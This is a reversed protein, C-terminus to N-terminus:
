YFFLNRGRGGDLFYVASASVCSGNLSLENFYFNIKLNFFGGGWKKCLSCLLFFFVIGFCLSFLLTCSLCLYFLSALWVPWQRLGLVSGCASWRAVCIVAIHSFAWSGRLPMEGVSLTVHDMSYPMYILEKAWNQEQKNPLHAESTVTPGAETFTHLHHCDGNLFAPSDSIPLSLVSPM